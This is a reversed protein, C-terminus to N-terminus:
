QNSAQRGRCATRHEASGALLRCVFISLSLHTCAFLCFVFVCLLIICAMSPGSDNAERVVRVERSSNEVMNNPSHREESSPAKSEEQPEATAAEVQGAPSGAAVTTTGCFGSLFEARRLGYDHSAFERALFILMVLLVLFVIALYALVGLMDYQVITHDKGHAIRVIANGSLFLFAVVIVFFGISIRYKAWSALPGQWHVAMAHFSFYDTGWTANCTGFRVRAAKALGGLIREHVESPLM